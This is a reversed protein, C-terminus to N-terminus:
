HGFAATLRCKFARKAKWERGFRGFYIFLLLLRALKGQYRPEDQVGITGEHGFRRYGRRWVEDLYGHYLDDRDRRIRGWHPRASKQDHGSEYHYFYFCPRRYAFPAFLGAFLFLTPWCDLCFFSYRTWQQSDLIVHRDSSYSKGLLISIDWLLLSHSLISLAECCAAVM